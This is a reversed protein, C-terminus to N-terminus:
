VNVQTIGFHEVRSDAAEEVYMTNVNTLQKGILIQSVTYGRVKFNDDTIKVMIHQKKQEQAFLQLSLVHM